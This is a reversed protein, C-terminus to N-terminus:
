TVCSSRLRASAWSMWDSFSEESPCITAPTAWSTLLGSAKTLLLRAISWRSTLWSLARIRSYWSTVPGQLLM